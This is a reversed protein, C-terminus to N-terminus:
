RVPNTLFLLRNYIESKEFHLSAMSPETPGRDRFTLRIHDAFDSMYYYLRCNGFRETATAGVSKLVRDFDAVKHYAFKDPIMKPSVVKPYHVGMESDYIAVMEDISAIMPPHFLDIAVDEMFISKNMMFPNYNILVPIPLRDGGEDEFTLKFESTSRHFRTNRDIFDSGLYSIRPIFDDPFRSLNDYHEQVSYYRPDIVQLGSEAKLHIVQGVSDFHLPRNLLASNLADIDVISMGLDSIKGDVSIIGSTCETMPYLRSYYFQKEIEVDSTFMGRFVYTSKLFTWDAKKNQEPIANGRILSKNVVTITAAIDIGFDSSFQPVASIYIDRKRKVLNPDQVKVEQERDNWQNVSPRILM